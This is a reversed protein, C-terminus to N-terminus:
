FKFRFEFRCVQHKQLQTHAALQFHSMRASMLSQLALIATHGVRLDRPLNQLCLPDTMQLDSPNPLQARDLQTGQVM